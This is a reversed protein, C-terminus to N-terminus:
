PMASLACRIGRNDNLDGPKLFNRYAAPLYISKGSWSGGRLVRWEGESPGGPNKWETQSSYYTEGYWDNVWEWLNGAMDLAGYPSAGDPYSGVKTADNPEKNFNALKVDPEQDGWPYIRGDTGRAAKEWEAETPLRRGAWECYAKARPWDVYTVPFDKFESNGYYSDHSNSRDRSPAECKGEQVCKEYQGNTTEFKDIWYADLYVTHQPKQNDKADKVDDASGMKFEGAPVFVMEANDIESTQTSGIEQSLVDGLLATAAMTTARGPIFFTLGIFITIFSFLFRKSM